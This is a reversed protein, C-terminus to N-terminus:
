CPRSELLGARDGPDSGAFRVIVVGHNATQIRFTDGDHNQIYEGMAEFHQYSDAHSIGCSLILTLLAAVVPKWRHTLNSSNM